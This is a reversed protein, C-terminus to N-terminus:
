RVWLLVNETGRATVPNSSLVAPYSGLGEATGAASGVVKQTYWGSEPHLTMKYRSWLYTSALIM